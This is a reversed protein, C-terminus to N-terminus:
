EEEIYHMHHLGLRQDGIRGLLGKRFERLPPLKMRTVVPVNIFHRENELLADLASIDYVIIENRGRHGVTLRTYDKNVALGYSGDMFSGRSIRLARVYHQLAQLPSMMTLAEILSGAAIGIFRPHTITEWFGTREDIYRARGTRTESIVLTSSACANHFMTGKPDRKKKIVDSSLHHPMIAGFSKGIIKASCGQSRPPEIDWIFNNRWGIALDDYNAKGPVKQPGPEYCESVCGICEWDTEDPAIGMHWATERLHILQATHTDLYYIGMVQAPGGDNTDMSGYALFKGSPAMKLGHVLPVLYKGRRVPEDDPHELDCEWFYGDIRPILIRRPGLWAVHTWGHWAAPVPRDHDEFDPVGAPLVPELTDADFFQSIGSFTGLHGWRKGNADPPGIQVAHGAAVGDYFRIVPESLTDNHLETYLVGALGRRGDLGNGDLASWIRIM